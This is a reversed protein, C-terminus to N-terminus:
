PVLTIPGEESPPPAAEGCFDCVGYVLQYFGHCDTRGSPATCKAPKEKVKPGFTAEWRDRYDQDGGVAVSFSKDMFNGSM